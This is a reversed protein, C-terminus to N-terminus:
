VLFHEVLGRLKKLPRALQQGAFLRLDSLVIDFPASLENVAQGLASAILLKLLFQLTDIGDHIPKRTPTRSFRDLRQHARDLLLQVPPRHSRPNAARLLNASGARVWLKWLDYCEWARARSM